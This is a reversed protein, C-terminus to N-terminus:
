RSGRKELYRKLGDQWSPIGIKLNQKTKELSLVSYAPRKAPRPYEATTCPIVNVPLGALVERAFDYWTTEGSNTYHYIGYQDSDLLRQLMEVLDDVLTPAGKQDNVVKIESYEQALKLMTEVFNKGNHGYLWATLVIFYKGSSYQELFEEGAAKSKGYASVPARLDDPLYPKDATGDFVYDTSIHVIPQGQCVETLNKVAIANASYAQDYETECLDVNTFAACNYVFAIENEAFFDALIDKNALDVEPLDVGLVDFGESQLREYLVSGLMGRCGTVLIKKQKDIM